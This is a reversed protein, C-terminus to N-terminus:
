KFYINKTSVKEKFTNRLYDSILCKGSFMILSKEIKYM